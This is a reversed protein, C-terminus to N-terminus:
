YGNVIKPWSNLDKKYQEVDMEFIAPNLSISSWDIKGPNKELLSIAAPNRSLWFWNIKDKNKELLSIAAPNLSLWSWDIKDPNKELLSIAVPNESLWSWNIKDPNKELLSIAAPNQSLGSWDIKDPNKELLSIAAPNRSLASWVIKDPNKELLSIAAPNYSLGSWNIKDLNKELLSIAVSNESLWSWDIKDPNKELLSIAAPNRSLKDPNKKLVSIAAPNKSLIYWDIKEQDIFSRFRTPIPTIYQSIIYLLCKPLLDLKVSVKKIARFRRPITYKRKPKKSQVVIKSSLPYFDLIQCGNMIKPWVYGKNRYQESLTFKDAYFESDKRLLSAQHSYHFDESGMWWPMEITEPLEYLALNNKYGRDIWEQVIVNFYMKLADTYGRWMIVAPHNRWGKIDPNENVNIIQMSECRQKGLRRYDLCKATKKFDAFPLFTNVM